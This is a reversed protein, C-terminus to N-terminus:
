AEKQKNGAPRGPGKKEAVELDKEMKVEYYWGIQIPWGESVRYGEDFGKQLISAVDQLTNAPEIREDKNTM